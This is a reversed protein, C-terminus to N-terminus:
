KSTFKINFLSGAMASGSIVKAYLETEKNNLKLLLPRASHVAKKRSEEVPEDNNSISQEASNQLTGSYEVGLLVIKLVFASVISITKKFNYM